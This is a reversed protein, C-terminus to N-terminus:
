FRTQLSLIQHTDKKSAFVQIKRCLPTSPLANHTHTEQFEVVNEQFLNKNIKMSEQKTSAYLRWCIQSLLYVRVCYLIQCQHNPDKQSPDTDPLPPQMLWIQYRGIKM